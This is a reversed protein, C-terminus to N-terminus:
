RQEPTLEGRKPEKEARVDDKSQRSAPALRDFGYLSPSLSNAVSQIM